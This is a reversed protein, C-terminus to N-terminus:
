RNLNRLQAAESQWERTRMSIWDCSLLKLSIDTLSPAVQGIEEIQRGSEDSVTLRTFKERRQTHFWFPGINWPENIM